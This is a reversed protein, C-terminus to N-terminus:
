SYSYIYVLHLIRVAKPYPIKSLDANLGKCLQYLEWQENLLIPRQCNNKAKGKQSHLGPHALLQMACEVWSGCDTSFTRGLVAYELIRNEM